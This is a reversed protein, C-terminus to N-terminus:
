RRSKNVPWLMLGQFIETQFGLVESTDASELWVHRPFPHPLPIDAPSSLRNEGSVKALLL